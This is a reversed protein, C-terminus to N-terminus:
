YWYKGGCSLEWPCSCFTQKYFLADHQGSKLVRPTQGLIEEPTYGTIKTFAQNVKVIREQADTILIADETEFAVSSLRLQEAQKQADINIYVGTLFLPLKEPTYEIVRGRVQIWTWEEKASKMRREVLFWGQLAVQKQISTFMSQVDDPHTLMKTMEWSANFAFPEYGLLLYCQKDWTITEEQYNWRWLGTQTAEM